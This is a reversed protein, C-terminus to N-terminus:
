SEPLKIVKNYRKKIYEAKLKNLERSQLFPDSKSRDVIQKAKLVWEKEILDGDDAIAPTGTATLASPTMGVQPGPNTQLHQPVDAVPTAM